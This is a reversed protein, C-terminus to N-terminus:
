QTTIPSASTGTTTQLQCDLAQSTGSKTSKVSKSSPRSRRSRTSSATPATQSAKTLGGAAKKPDAMDKSSRISPSPSPDKKRGSKSVTTSSSQLVNSGPNPTSPKCKKSTLCSILETIVISIIVIIYDIVHYETTTAKLKSM